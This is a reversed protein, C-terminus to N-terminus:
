GPLRSGEGVREAGKVVVREGANLGSLIEVRDGHRKGTKVLRFRAAGEADVVYLGVLQGRQLVAESPVALVDKKGLSFRAKGYLGSRILPHSPLAIKITFTRSKPDAAPVIEVVSGSLEKGLADISVPAPTGLRVKAVWSEAVQAELRYSGVEEVTLLPSGPAALMGAEATKATVIADFPSAITAYSLLTRTYSIKAKVQERKAKLARLGEEARVAEADAVTYKARVEDYEQPTVSGKGILSEYRKFTSYALDRQGKAGVVGAEAAKIAGEMEELAAETGQLEAQLDRRDIEVLTKGKPVRDGEKVSISVITGVIKSSLTATRRSVVTGVAEFFDEVATPQIAEAVVGQIPKAEQRGQSTQKEGSCGFVLLLVIATLISKTKV